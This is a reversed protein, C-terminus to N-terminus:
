AGGEMRDLIMTLWVRMEDAWSDRLPTGDEVAEIGDWITLVLALAEQNSLTVTEEAM